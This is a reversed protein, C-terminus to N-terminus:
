RLPQVVEEGVGTLVEGAAEGAPTKAVEAVVVVAVGVEESMLEERCALFM